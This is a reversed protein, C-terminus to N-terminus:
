FCAYEARRCCRVVTPPVGVGVAPQRRPLSKSGHPEPLGSGGGDGWGNLTFLIVCANDEGDLNFATLVLKVASTNGGIGAEASTDGGIGAEASTDGGIGAEVGTL